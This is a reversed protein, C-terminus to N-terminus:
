RPSPVDIPPFITCQTFLINAELNNTHHQTIKFISLQRVKKGGHTTPQCSANTSWMINHVSMTFVHSSSPSSSQSGFLNQVHSCDFPFGM